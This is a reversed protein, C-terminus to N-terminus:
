RIGPVLRLAWRLPYQWAQPLRRPRKRAGALQELELVMLRDVRRHRGMPRIFTGVFQRARREAKGSDGLIADLQQRHEDFDAAVLLPGGQQQRLYHFHLTQEQGGTFDPALVTCVATGTISAELMASTNLGVLASAHHLSDFLGQDANMATPLRWLALNPADGFTVDDWQEKHVPHPRVLIAADALVPNRSKRIEAVWRMVFEVERPAV